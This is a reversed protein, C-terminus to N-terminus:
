TQDGNRLQRILGFSQVACTAGFIAICVHAFITRSGITPRLFAANVSEALFFVTAATSVTLRLQLFWRSKPGGYPSGEARTAIMM